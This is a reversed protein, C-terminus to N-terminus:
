QAGQHSGVNPSVQPTSTSAAVGMLAVWCCRHVAMDGDLCGGLLAQLGAWCHRCVRWTVVWVGAWCRRFVQWMVAWSGARCHGIFQWTVVQYGAMDGGLLVWLGAADSGV